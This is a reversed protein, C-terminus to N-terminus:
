FFLLTTEGFRDRGLFIKTRIWGNLAFMGECRELAFVGDLSLIKTLVEADSQSKFFM